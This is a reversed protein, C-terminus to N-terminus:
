GPPSLRRLKRHLANVADSLSVLASASDPRPLQGEGRLDHALVEAAAHVEPLGLIVALERIRLVRFRVETIDYVFLADRLGAGEQLLAATDIAANNDTM